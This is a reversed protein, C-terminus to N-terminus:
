ARHGSNRRLSTALEHDLEIAIVHAARTALAGTIAGQGPGIEVVTRGALDGMAAAIRQAAQIDVLFNQGLRPKPPM